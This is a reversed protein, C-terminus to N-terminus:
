TILKYKFEEKIKNYKKEQLNLAIINKDKKKQKLLFNIATQKSDNVCTGLVTGLTCALKLATSSAWKIHYNLSKLWNM